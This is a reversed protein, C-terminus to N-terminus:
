TCKAASTEASWYRSREVVPCASLSCSLSLWFTVYMTTSKCCGLNLTLTTSRILWVVFYVEWCSFLFSISTRSSCFSSNSFTLSSAVLISVLSLCHITYFVSSLICALRRGSFVSFSQVPNHPHPRPQYECSTLFRLHSQVLVCLPFTHVSISRSSLQDRFTTPRSFLM